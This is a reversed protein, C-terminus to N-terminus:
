VQYNVLLDVPPTTSALSSGRGPTILRPRTALLQLPGANVGHEM